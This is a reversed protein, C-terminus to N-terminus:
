KRNSSESKYVMKYHSATSEFALLLNKEEPFLDVAECSDIGVFNQLAEDSAWLSLLLFYVLEGQIEKMIFLGENGEATQCAPVVFNNLYESYEEAKTALTVGRWIRVITMSYEESSDIQTQAPWTPLPFIDKEALRQIV